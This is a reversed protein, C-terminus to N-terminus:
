VSWGKACLVGNQEVLLLLPERAGLTEANTAAGAERLLCLLREVRRM